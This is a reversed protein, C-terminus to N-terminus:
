PSRMQGALARSRRIFRNKLEGCRSVLEQALGPDYRMLDRALRLVQQDIREVIGPVVFVSRYLEEFRQLYAARLGPHRLIARAVVGKPRTIVPASSNRLVQDLDHPIFVIKGNQPNHYVLYNKINATYGDWHDLMVEMAMFSLFGPLDLVQPLREQLDQLDSTRASQALAELEAGNTEERGGIRELGGQIDANARLSYVNGRPNEFYRALFDSNISELLAYLGVRRGNLEVVAHAVRAAPVGAQRFLESCTWESIYTRDQVSNNLHFKRLGHFRGNSDRLNLTFGPKDDIGRFSGAGGKLRVMVNTFVSRGERLIAPVDQRPNHRLSRIGQPSIDIRLLRLVGNTFLADAEAQFTPQAASAAGAVSLPGALVGGLLLTLLKM